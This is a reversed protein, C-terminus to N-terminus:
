EAAQVTPVPFEATVLEPWILWWDKTRLMRRTLKGESEREIRAADAPHMANRGTLCQYLFQENIGLAAALQLREERTFSM